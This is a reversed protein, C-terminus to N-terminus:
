EYRTRREMVIENVIVNKPLRILWQVTDSIAVPNILLDRSTEPELTRGMDTNVTDPCIATARIGQSAYEVNVSRTLSLVAAKTASYIAKNKGPRIARYSSLNIIEGGGKELMGPIAYRMTWLTGLFNVGIMDRDLISQPDRFPSCSITGASNVLIDPKADLVVDRSQSFDTVDLEKRSLDMVNYQDRNFGKAIAAGIGRSGGTILVVKRDTQMM